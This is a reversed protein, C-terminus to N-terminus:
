FLAVQFGPSLPLHHLRSHGGVSRHWLQGMDWCSWLGSSVGTYMWAAAHHLLLRVFLDSSGATSMRPGPARRCQCGLGRLGGGIVSQSTDSLGTVAFICLLESMIDQVAVESTYAQALLHRGLVICTGLCCWIAVNVGQCLLITQLALQPRGAAIANGTLTATATNLGIAPMFTLVLLNMTTVHAALATPGLYGVIIACIEWFWWESCLQMTAPIAVHLYDGWQLWGEKGVWLTDRANVGLREANCGLYFSSVICQFYWTVSNAYGAGANGLDFHVVFLWCWGVHLVSAALCILAPATSCRRNQLFKKNAEWQFIGLLGIVSARNYHGAAIAVDKDQGVLELLDKTFCLVPVIWLLQLTVLIRCRQLYFCSVKHQGAGFSQSVLTDMAACIGFGISLGFCNQMMNGLGVAALQAENGAHGIFVTNTVENLLTLVYGMINPIAILVIQKLTDACHPVAENLSARPKLSPMRPVDASTLLHETDRETDRESM